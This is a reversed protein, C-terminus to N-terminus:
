PTLSFVDGYNFPGGDAVTGYLVGNELLIGGYPNIGDGNDGGAPVTVTGTFSHLVTEKWTGSASKPPTLSFVTGADIDGGWVTTGYLVKDKTIALAGYPSAGGNACIYCIAGTSTVPITFDHLVSEKWKGGEKAPPSLRYVVGIDDGGGNFTAGYFVGDDDVVLGSQPNAGNGGSFSFLVTEKWKKEKAPPPELEFVTGNNSAGGISTTGYFNGKKDVILGSYPMGGDAGSFYHIITEKWETAPPEPPSLEFVAGCGEEGCGIGGMSATGYLNGKYLLLPALPYAADDASNTGFSYLVEETWDTSRGGPPTLRFVTGETQDGGNLTTGYIERNAGLTLDAWPCSGDTDSKSGFTYLIKEKTQPEGKSPSALSFVVGEGELTSSGGNCTTGYLVGKADMVLGAEPTNGDPAKLFPHLICCQRTVEAVPLDAAQAIAPANENGAMGGDQQAAMPVVLLMPLLVEVLMRIPRM